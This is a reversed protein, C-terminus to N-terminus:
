MLIDKIEILFDTLPIELDRFFNLLIVIIIFFNWRKIKKIVLLLFLLIFIDLFLLYM